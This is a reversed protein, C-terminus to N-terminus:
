RTIWRGAGSIAPGLWGRTPQSFLCADELVVVTANGLTEFAASM